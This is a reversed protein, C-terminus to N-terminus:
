IQGASPETGRSTRRLGGTSAISAVLLTGLGIRWGESLVVNEVRQTLFAILPVALLALARRGTPSRSAVGAAVCPAAVSLVVMVVAPLRDPFLSLPTSAAIGFAVAGFALIRRWGLSEVAHRTDATRTLAGTVV